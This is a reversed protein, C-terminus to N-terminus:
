CHAVTEFSRGIRSLHVAGETPTNCKQRILRAVSEGYVNRFGFRRGAVVMFLVWMLILMVAVPVLFGASEILMHANAIMGLQSIEQMSNRMSALAAVVLWFLALPAYLFVKGVINLAVVGANVAQTFALRRDLMVQRQIAAYQSDTIQGIQVGNMSVTWDPGVESMVRATLRAEYREVFFTSLIATLGTLAIAAVIIWVDQSLFRQYTATAVFGVSLGIVITMWRKASTKINNSLRM